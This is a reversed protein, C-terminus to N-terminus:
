LVVKTCAGFCAHCAGQMALFVGHLRVRSATRYQGLQPVFATCLPVLLLLLVARGAM